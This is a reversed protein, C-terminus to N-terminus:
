VLLPWTCGGYPVVRSVTVEVLSRAVTDVDAAFECPVFVSIDCCLFCRLGGVEDSSIERAAWDM